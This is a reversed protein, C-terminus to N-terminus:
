RESKMKSKIVLDPFVIVANTIRAIRSPQQLLRFLWELGFRQIFLPARKVSGALYDFSGGVGVAIVVIKLQDKVKDIWLDQWPHGYAVFLVEAGSLNIKEVLVSDEETLSDNYISDKINRHGSDSFFEIEKNIERLTEATGASVGEGGGLLFVRKGKMWPKAVLEKMFDIGSIKELGANEFVSTSNRLTDFTTRLFDVLGDFYRSYVEIKLRCAILLGVGDILTLEANNLVKKFKPNKNAEVIFEPNVTVIHILQNRKAVLTQDIKEYLSVRTLPNIRIGCIEM